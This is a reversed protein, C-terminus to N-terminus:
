HKFWDSSKSLGLVITTLQLRGGCLSAGLKDLGGHQGSPSGANAPAKFFYIVTGAGEPTLAEEQYEKEDCVGVSRLKNGESACNVADFFAKHIESEEDQLSHLDVIWWDSPSFLALFRPATGDCCHRMMVTHGIDARVVRATGIFKVGCDRASTVNAMAGYYGTVMVM